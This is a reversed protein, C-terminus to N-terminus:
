QSTILDPFSGRAWENIWNNLFNVSPSGSGVSQGPLYLSLIYLSSCLFNGSAQQLQIESYLLFSCFHEVRDKGGVEGEALLHRGTYSYRKMENVLPWTRAVTVRQSADSTEGDHQLAEGDEGLAPNWLPPISSLWLPRPVQWPSYPFLFPLFPQSM